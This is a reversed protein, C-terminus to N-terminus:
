FMLQYCHVLNIQFSIEKIFVKELTYVMDVLCMKSYIQQTNPPVYNPVSTPDGFQLEWEVIYRLVTELGNSNM